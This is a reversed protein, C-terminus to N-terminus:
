CSPLCVGPVTYHEDEQVAKRVRAAAMRKDKVPDGTKNKEIEANVKMAKVMPSSDAEEELLTRSTAPKTRFASRGTPPEASSVAPRRQEAANM